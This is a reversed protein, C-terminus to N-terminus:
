QAITYLAACSRETTNDPKMLDTFIAHSRNVSTPLGNYRKYNANPPFRLTLTPGVDAHATYFNKTPKIPPGVFLIAGFVHKKNRQNFLM